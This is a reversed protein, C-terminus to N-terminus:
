KVRVALVIGNGSATYYLPMLNRFEFSTNIDTSFRRVEIYYGNINLACERLTGLKYDLAHYNNAQFSWASQTSDYHIRGGTNEVRPSAGGGATLTYWLLWVSGCLNHDYVMTPLLTSANDYKGTVELKAPFTINQNLCTVNEATIGINGTFDIKGSSSVNFYNISGGTSISNAEITDCTVSTPLKVYSPNSADLIGSVNIKPATLAGNVSVDGRCVVNEKCEVSQAITITDDLIQIRCLEAKGEEDILRAGISYVPKSGSM